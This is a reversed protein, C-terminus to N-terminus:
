LPLAAVTKRLWDVAGGDSAANGPWHFLADWFSDKGKWHRSVIAVDYDAFIQTHFIILNIIGLRYDNWLDELSYNTVGGALLGRYYLDVFREEHARRQDPLLGSVIIRSLDIAGSDVSVSQWDIVYFSEKVSDPFLIQGRHFSGHCMTLPRRRAYEALTNAHALWLEVIAFSIEGFDARFKEGVKQFARKVKQIRLELLDPANESEVGELDKKREWWKAHFASLYRIALEVDAPSGDHMDRMHSHEIYELLLFCRNEKADHSAAYCQPTPIGPDSGFRAYFEIEREYLRYDRLAQRVMEVDSSFKAIAKEPAREASHDYTFRLVYVLSTGGQGSLPTADFTTIRAAGLWGKEFFLENLWEVTLEALRYPFSM